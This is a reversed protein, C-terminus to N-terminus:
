DANTIKFDEFPCVEQDLEGNKIGEFLGVGPRIIDILKVEEGEDFWTYPLATYRVTM